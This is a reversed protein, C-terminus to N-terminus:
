LWQVSIKQGFRMPTTHNKLANAFNGFPVTLKTLDTHSPGEAHRNKKCQVVRSGSSPNKHYKINAYNKLSLKPVSLPRKHIRYHVKPNRLIRPIELSISFPKAEWFLTRSSPAPLCLWFLVCKKKEFYTSFIRTKNLESLFLLYTVQHWMYM